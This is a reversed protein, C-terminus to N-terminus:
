LYNAHDPTLNDNRAKSSEVNDQPDRGAQFRARIALIPARRRFKGGQRLPGAPVDAKPFAHHDQFRTPLDQLDSGNGDTRCRDSSQGDIHRGRGPGAPACALPVIFIVANRCRKGRRTAIKTSAIADADVTLPALGSVLLVPPASRGGLESNVPPHCKTRVRWGCPPGSAMEMMCVASVELDSRSRAPRMIRQLSRPVSATITRM